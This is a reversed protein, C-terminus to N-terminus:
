SSVSGHIQWSEVKLETFVDVRQAVRHTFECLGLDRRAGALDVPVVLKRHVQPALHAREAHEADRDAFLEAAGVHAIQRVHNRYSIERAEAETPREYPAWLL